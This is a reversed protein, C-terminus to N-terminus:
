MALANVRMNGMRIMGARIPGTIKDTGERRSTLVSKDTLKKRHLKCYFKQDTVFIIFSDMKELYQAVRHIFIIIHYDKQITSCSRSIIELPELKRSLM